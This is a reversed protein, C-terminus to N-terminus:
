LANTSCVDRKERVCMCVWVCLSDRSFSSHIQCLSSFANWVSHILFTQVYLFSSPNWQTSQPTPRHRHLPLLRIIREAGWVSCAAGYCESYTVRGLFAWGGCTLPRLDPEILGTRFPGEVSQNVWVNLLKPILVFFNRIPVCIQLPNHIFLLM